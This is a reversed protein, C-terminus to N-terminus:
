KEQSKRYINISLLIGIFFFCAHRHKESYKMGGLSVQLCGRLVRYQKRESDGRESVLKTKGLTHVEEELNGVHPGVGRHFLCKWLLGTIDCVKPEHECFPFLALLSSRELFVVGKKNKQM